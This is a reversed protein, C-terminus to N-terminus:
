TQRESLPVVERGRLRAIATKADHGILYLTPVMLLSVFLAFFVGFALSTVAGKLFAADTSREVMIPILGVVTTVTTLLIPRFRNVGADRVADKAALGERERRRIYDVLVLNDNVVVGAAAGIGFYSFLDMPINFILHGFVAGMFGYPIATMILLPLTYSAFAVAILAYIVLFAVIYLTTIEAFFEEEAEQQGATLVALGPYKQELIPVFEDYVADNIQSMSEADTAATVTLVRQGDRRSIKQVGSALTVEAISFLPISRGDVTRIMFNDLSSLDERTALPYRVMVRVDGYERPLRQVEEGFYAQRVQRSVDSLTVGLKEAGPRLTFLLEATEGRQSDRVFEAKDYGRLHLQLEASAEQLIQLDEHQLRFMLVNETSTMSYNVQIDEADPIDGVLERFREAVERVPLDRVEPPVMRVVAVVNDRGARVYTNEIVRGSGGSATAQAEVEEVLQEEAHQLQDLVSLARDFPTGSPLDVSIFIQENDVQPTFLFSVWGSLLLGVAIVFASFFIAVTTYRQRICRELFPGYTNKAFDVIRHAFRQQRLALGSLNTRPEVHRLHAPLILFAEVLSALLAFTIVLSLQRTMQASTGSLFLWPAFAVITTLVAFIVPRAVAVTGEVAAEPGPLLHDHTHNHISEGVVIADDVVIGLVLLFAFTSMVNLSVDYSPLLAFAGLFAVGIGATVWLAVRPRLALILVCFVLVLGMYASKEITSMRARYIDATDFWLMIDVSEPLTPGVKEIWAQVAESSKVVQMNDTSMVQLLIAPKGNLTARIEDQEFGDIVHAVDDVTIMAGDPSQRVIIANFDDESDALNSARLQIDGTRTQVAGASVNLSNLRIATAVDSFSLGYRRLAEESLEITVEEPRSGFLEVRSVYPENALDNRLDEALRTLQREGIDGSLAVRIMEYNYEQRKVRPNEIDRPFSTISDVANKVDNLFGNVDIGPYTEVTIFGFGEQSESSFRYVNTVSKLAEEVRSVLQQEVEKPSAGRWVLEIQVSDPTVGPMAEKEIHDLGLWGSIAIILMLLNAAVPNRVWWAVLGRM